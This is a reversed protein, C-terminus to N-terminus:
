LITIEVRNFSIKFYSKIEKSKTSGKYIATIDNIDVVKQGELSKWKRDSVKDYIKGKQYLRKSSLILSSKQFNGELINAIYGQGLVSILQEEKDFFIKESFNTNM